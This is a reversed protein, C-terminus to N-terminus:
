HAPAPAPLKGLFVARVRDYGRLAPLAQYFSRNREADEPKLASRAVEMASEPNGSLAYVLALNQRYQSQAPTIGQTGLRMDGIKPNLIVLAESVRDTAALSLALNGSLADFWPAGESTLALGDRYAKEAAAPQLTLDSAIGLLNFFEADAPNGALYNALVTLADAAREQGLLARAYRRAAEPNNPAIDYAAGFAQLAQAPAGGAAFVRGMGLWPEPNDPDRQAADNYFQLANAYDGAEELRQGMRLMGGEDISRLEPKNQSAASTGLNLQNKNGCGALFLAAAAVCALATKSVQALAAM